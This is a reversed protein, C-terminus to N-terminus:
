PMPITVNTSVWVGDQSAQVKYTGAATYQHTTTGPAAVYDWTDDGFDYWIPGTATPAVTFDATHGTADSGDKTATVGTLSPLSPDLVPRAGCADDPPNVDVIMTRLAVSTSVPSSMPSPVATPLVGTTTQAVAIAPSTGGTFSGAATIAGVPKKGLSGTFTIVYPTGPGPGGTVTANGAGVSSLALFATQVASATANYAIGSATQGGFTLSFTGGTPTGTISVTQVANTGGSTAGLMVNYPGEGWSNGEKTNAGTLTFTVADNEVTFDGLIGGTLFPLLLYGFSGQAGETACADGTPSGAWLELAFNSNELGIQTDVDFGVVTSGDAATVTNQGTVLGFLEPDVNCFQIEIGYGTLTTVAAEYVCVDGNANTVSIEDSDTTNATFQVQIFGKSVVQSDDGYVPRGCSDLRTVRIRRGKVLSLCKTAHSAM